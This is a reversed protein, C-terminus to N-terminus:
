KAPGVDWGDFESNFFLRGLRQFRVEQVSLSDLSNIHVREAHLCWGGTDGELAFIEMTRYGFPRLGWSLVVLPAKSKNTFFYGWVLDGSLDWKATKPLRDFVRSNAEKVRSLDAAPVHAVWTVLLGPLLAAALIGVLIKRRRTM